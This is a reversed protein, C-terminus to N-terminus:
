SVCKKSCKSKFMEDSIIEKLNQLRGEVVAKAERYGSTGACVPLLVFMEEHSKAGAPRIRAWVHSVEEDESKSNWM